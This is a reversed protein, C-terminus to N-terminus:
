LVECKVSLQLFSSLVNAHNARGRFDAMAGLLYKRGHCGAPLSEHITLAPHELNKIYRQKMRHMKLDPILLGESGRV